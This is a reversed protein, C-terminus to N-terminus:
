SGELCAKVLGLAVMDGSNFRLLGAAVGLEDFLGTDALILDPFTKFDTRALAALVCSSFWELGTADLTM